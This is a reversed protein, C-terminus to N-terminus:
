RCPGALSSPGDRRSRLSLRGTLLFHRRMPRFLRDDAPHRGPPPPLAVHSVPPTRVESWSPGSMSCSANPHVMDDAPSVINLKPVDRPDPLGALAPFFRHIPCFRGASPGPLCWPPWGAATTRPGLTVAATAAEAIRPDALLRRVFLGGMSHGALVIRPSDDLLAHVQRTLDAAIDEFSKRGFSNYGLAQVRAYGSRILAPKFVIWASPNHYLGHILVVTPKTGPVASRPRWLPRFFGAPYALGALFLAAVGSVFAHAMDLGPRELLPPRTNGAEYAYITYSLFSAGVAFALIALLVGM